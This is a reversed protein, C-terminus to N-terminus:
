RRASQLSGVRPEDDLIACGYRRDGADWTTADPYWIAFRGFESERPAIGIFDTFPGECGAQTQTEVESQGPFTTGALLTGATIKQGLHPLACVVPKVRGNLSLTQPVLEPTLSFCSGDELDFFSPYEAPTYPGEILDDDLVACLVQRDGNDWNSNSPRWFRYSFGDAPEGFYSEFEAACADTSADTLETKEPLDAGAPFPLRGRGFFIGNFTGVCNTLGVEDTSRLDRADPADSVFCDGDKLRSILVSDDREFKRWANETSSNLEIDPSSTTVFCSASYSGEAWQQEGPTIFDGTLTTDLVDSGLFDGSVLDCENDFWVAMVRQGPYGKGADPHEVQGTIQADHPVTCDALRYVTENAPNPVVDVCDGAALSLGDTTAADVSSGGGLFINGLVFLTALACVFGALYPVTQSEPTDLGPAQAM